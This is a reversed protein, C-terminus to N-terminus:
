SAVPFVMNQLRHPAALLSSALNQLAHEADSPAGAALAPTNITSGALLGPSAATSDNKM